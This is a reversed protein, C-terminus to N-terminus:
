DEAGERQAQMHQLAVPRLSKLLAKKAPPQKLQRTGGPAAAAAAAQVTVMAGAGLASSGASAQALAAAAAAHSGPPPVVEAAEKQEQLQQQAQRVLVRLQQVDLGYGPAISFVSSEAEQMGWLRSWAHHACLLAASTSRAVAAAESPAMHRAGACARVRWALCAPLGVLDNSLLGEVWSQLLEDAETDVFTLNQQQALTVAEQLRRRRRM